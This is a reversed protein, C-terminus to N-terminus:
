KSIKTAQIKYTNGTKTVVGEVRVNANASLSALLPTYEDNYYVWYCIGGCCGGRGGLQFCHGYQDWNSVTGYVSQVNTNAVPAQSTIRDAYLDGNVWHCYAVAHHGNAVTGTIAANGHHVTHNGVKFTANTLDSITGQVTYTATTASDTSSWLSIRTAMHHGTEEHVFGCVTVHDGVQFGDFSHHSYNNGQGHHGNGHGNAKALYSKDDVIVTQGAV